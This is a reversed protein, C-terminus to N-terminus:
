VWKAGCQSAALFAAAREPDPPVADNGYLFLRGLVFRAIDEDDMGADVIGEDMTETLNQWLLGPAEEDSWREAKERLADLARLAKRSRKDGREAGLRCWEAAKAFDLEVYGRGCECAHGFDRPAQAHGQDVARQWWDLTEDDLEKGAEERRYLILRGLWWQADANGQEALERLATEGAERDINEREFPIANYVMWESLAQGALTAIARANGQKAKALLEEFSLVAQPRRGGATKGDKGAMEQEQKARTKVSGM